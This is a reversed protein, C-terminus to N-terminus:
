FSDLIEDMQTWNIVLSGNESIDVSVWVLEHITFM